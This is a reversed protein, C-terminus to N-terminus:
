VGCGGCRDARDEPRHCEAPPIRGLLAIVGLAELQHLSEQVGAVHLQVGRQRIAAALRFLDHAADELGVWRQHLPARDSGLSVRPGTSVHGRRSAFSAQGRGLEPCLHLCGPSREGRVSGDVQEVEVGRVCGGLDVLGEGLELRHVVLAREDVEAQAVKGRPLNDVNVSLARLDPQGWGRRVLPHVVAQSAGDLGLQNRRQALQVHPEERVIGQGATQQRPLMPPLHRHCGVVRASLPAAERLILHVPIPEPVLSVEGRHVGHTFRALGLAHSGRLSRQAPQVTVAAQVARIAVADDESRARRRM